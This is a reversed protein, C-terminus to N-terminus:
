RHMRHIGASNLQWIQLWLVSYQELASTSLVYFHDFVCAAGIDLRRVMPGDDSDKLDFDLGAPILSDWM